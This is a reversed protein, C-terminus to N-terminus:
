ECLLHITTLASMPKKTALSTVDCKVEAENDAATVKFETGAKTMTGEHIVKIPLKENGKYM